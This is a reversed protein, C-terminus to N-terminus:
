RVGAFRWRSVEAGTAPLRALRVGGRRVMASDLLAAVGARHSSLVLWAEPGGAAQIRRAENDAWGADEVAGNVGLSDPGTGSPIGVLETWPGLRYALSDGEQAVPHGRPGAHRFAAGTSSVLSVHHRVRATDPARWDTTYFVWAPVARGFVYITAGPAAERQLTRVLPALAEREPPAVLDRVADLAPLGLLMVAGLGLWPAPRWRALRDAVLGAGAALLLGVLPAAFLLLRPAVPYLRVASALVALGLPVLAALVLWAGGRRVLAVVGAALPLFLAGGTLIRVPTAEGVFWERLLAAPLTVVKSGLGPLGPSLFNPIWFRQMYTSGSTARYVLLYVVAWCAGWALAWAAVTARRRGTPPLLLAAGVGALILPAATSALATVLGLLGVAWWRAPREPADRLRAVALALLAAALADTIYPKLENSYWGLLPSLAVLGTALAAPGPALTRRALAAVVGLLAIGAVLAVLRLVREDAGGVLTAARVAWLFPVPALQDSDLPHLLGAFDRTLVNVALMAEDIWLPRGHAFQRLRLLAGALVALAVLRGAPRAAAPGPPVSPTM